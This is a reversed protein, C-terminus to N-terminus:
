EYKYDKIDKIDTNDDFYSVDFHEKVNQTNTAVRFFGLKDASIIEFTKQMMTVDDTEEGKEIYHALAAVGLVQEAAIEKHKSLAISKTFQNTNFRKKDECYERATTFIQTLTKTNGGVLHDSPHIPRDTAKRFFVDTTTIKTKYEDMQEIFPKLTSYFEDSRFKIVYPTSCTQLGLTVSFFHLYRNQGNDFREDVHPDYTMITTNYQLESVVGQLEKLIKVEEKKYEKMKPIVFIMPHEARYRYLTMITYLSVPGHVLITIENNQIM